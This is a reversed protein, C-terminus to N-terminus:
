PPPRLGIWGEACGERRADRAPWGLMKPEIIEEGRPEHPEEGRHVVVIRLPSHAEGRIRAMAYPPGDEVLQASEVPHGAARALPHPICLSGDVGQAPAQDPRGCVLLDCLLQADLGLRIAGGEALCDGED